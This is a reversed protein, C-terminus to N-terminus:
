QTSAFLRVDQLYVVEQGTGRKGFVRIDGRILIESSNALVERMTTSTVAEGLPEQVWGHDERLVVSLYVWDGPTGDEAEFVSTWSLEVGAQSRLSVAGRAARVNGEASSYSLRFQLRGGYSKKDRLADVFETPASYRWIGSYVEGCPYNPNIHPTAELLSTGSVSMMGENGVGTASSGIGSGDKVTHGSILQPTFDWHLILGISNGKFPVHMQQSVEDATLFKSWVRLHQLDAVLGKPGGRPNRATTDLDCSITSGNSEDTSDEEVIQCVNDDQAQGLILQGGAMLKVGAKYPGGSFVRAGDLYAAVRGDASRWAVAVHHWTGDAVSIGTFIGQLDGGGPGDYRDEATVYDSHVLLSLAEPSHILIEYSHPSGRQFKYSLITSASINSRSLSSNSVTRLWFSISLATSPFDTVSSKTAVYGSGNLQLVSPSHGTSTFLEALGEGFTCDYDCPTTSAYDCRDDYEEAGVLADSTGYGNLDVWGQRGGNGVVTWWLAIMGTSTVNFITEQLVEGDGYDYIYITSSTATAKLSAGDNIPGELSLTVTLTKFHREVENDDLLTIEIDKNTDGDYFRLINKGGVFDTGSHATVDTTTFGIDMIGKSGHDRQVSLKAVQSAETVYWGLSVFGFLGKPQYETVSLGITPSTDETTLLSTSYTMSKAAQTVTGNRLASYPNAVQNELTTLLQDVSADALSGSPSITFKIVISGAELDTVEFRSEDEGLALSLDSIFSSEFAARAVSGKPYSAADGDLTMSVAAQTLQTESAEESSSSAGTTSPMISSYLRWDNSGHKYCLFWYEIDSNFSFTAIGGTVVAASSGAIGESITCDSDQTVDSTVWKATDGNEIGTGDFTFEMSDRVSPVGSSIDVKVGTVEYADWFLADFMKWAGEKGFRYCLKYPQDKESRESVVLMVESTGTATSLGQTTISPSFVAGDGGAPSGACDGADNEAFKLADSSTMGFTGVLRVAAAKGTVISTRNATTISPAVVNMSIGPYAMFPEAGPGFCLMLDSTVEKFLFSAEHYFGEAVGVSSGAGPAIGNACDAFTGTGMGGSPTVWKYRDGEMGGHATFSVYQPSDVVAHLVQEMGITRVSAKLLQRVQMTQGEYLRYPEDGHKYCLKLGANGITPKAFTFSVYLDQKSGDEMIRGSASSVVYSANVLGGGLNDSDGEGCGANTTYTDPIWKARDGAQIGPGDVWFVKPYGVVSNDNAGEEARFSEMMIATLTFSPYVKLSEIGFQYCLTWTKGSNALGETDNSIFFEAVGGNSVVATPGDRFVDVTCDADVKAGSAWMVEDGAEVADGGAFTLVKPAGIVLIYANGQVADVETIGVVSLLIGKYLKYPEQDFSYCMAYPGGIETVPFTITRATFGTSSFYFLDFNDEQEGGDTEGAIGEASCDMGNIWKMNDLSAQTATGDGIFSFTKALDPVAKSASGSDVAVMRIMRIDIKFKEYAKIPEDTCPLCFQPIYGTCESPFGSLTSLCFM